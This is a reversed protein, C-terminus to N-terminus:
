RTVDGLNFEYNCYPCDIYRHYLLGGTRMEKTAVNIVESDLYEFVCGCIPCTLQNGPIHGDKLIKM